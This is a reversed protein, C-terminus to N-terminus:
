WKRYTVHDTVHGQKAYYLNISQYTYYYITEFNNTTLKM